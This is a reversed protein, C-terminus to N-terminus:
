HRGEHDQAGPLETEERKVALLPIARLGGDRDLLHIQINPLDLPTAAIRARRVRRPGRVLRPRAAARTTAVPAVVAPAPPVSTAPAVVRQAPFLPVPSPPAPPEPPAVPPAPPAVVTPAAAAAAPPADLPVVAPASTLLAAPAVAMPPVTSFLAAPTVAGPMATPLPMPPRRATKWAARPSPPGPSAGPLPSSTVAPAPPVGLPRPAREPVPPMTAPRPIVAALAPQASGKRTIFLADAVAIACVLLLTAVMLRGTPRTRAITEERAASVRVGSSTSVSGKRGGAVSAQARAQASSVVAASTSRILEAAQQVERRAAARSTSSATVRVTLVQSSRVSKLVRAITEPWDVKGADFELIGARPGRPNSAAITVFATDRYLDPEPFLAVASGALVLLVTAVWLLRRRRRRRRDHDAAVM